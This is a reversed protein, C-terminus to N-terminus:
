APVRAVVPSTRSQHFLAARAASTKRAVCLLREAEDIEMAPGVYRFVACPRGGFAGSMQSTRGSRQSHRGPRKILAWVPSRDMSGILAPHAPYMHLRKGIARNAQGLTNMLVFALGLGQYDPLTVVRSVGIIDHATPHPRHLLCALSAPSENVCLLYCQASRSLSATLYHFPAFLEWASHNVRSISIELKPRQQLLRRSFKMTGPELVWDPQLWDVIDYHCSAVVMRRNHSRIFKQVAHSAIQAVQRDIVSTFEDIVITEDIPTELLRRAIEVRFKEGNSLVAYPRLWAPITNFGVSQCAQTIQQISLAASFDDIISPAQWTM